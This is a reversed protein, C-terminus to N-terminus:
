LIQLYNYAVSVDKCPCEENNCGIVVDRDGNCHIDDINNGTDPDVCVRTNIMSGHGCTASCAPPDVM